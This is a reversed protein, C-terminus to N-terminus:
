EGLDVAPDFTSGADVTTSIDGGLSSASEIRIASAQRFIGYAGLWYWGM